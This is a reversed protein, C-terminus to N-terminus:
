PNLRALQGLWSPWHIDGNDTGLRLVVTRTAPAIYLIQGYLGQAYFDTGPPCRRQWACYAM